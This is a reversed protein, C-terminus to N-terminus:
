FITLARTPLIVFAHRANIQDTDLVVYRIQSSSDNRQMTLPDSFRLFGLINLSYSFNLQRRKWFQQARTLLENRFIYDLHSTFLFDSRLFSNEYEIKSRVRTKRTGHENAGRRFSTRFYRNVLVHNSGNSGDGILPIARDGNEGRPM